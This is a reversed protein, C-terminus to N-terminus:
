SSSPTYTPWPTPTAGQNLAPPVVPTGTEGPILVAPLTPSPMQGATPLLVPPSPLPPQTLSPTVTPSPELRNLLWLAGGGLLGGLLAVILLGICGWLWWRRRAAPKPQALSGPPVEMLIMTINDHGGRQNALDILSEAAQRAPQSEVAALIEEDGVLDTLGDSCLLLRDGERLRLGQNDRAQDDSEGGNLRLRFDVQPPTPSGLFRRIVHSNPHHLAQEPSILGRELAEQIWTHDTTLQHISGRRLLYIRSDGVSATYLRDGVIYVCACTAGMGNKEHNSRSQEYITASATTIAQELLTTPPLKDGNELVYGAILNVTMEAAVEGARHGGIGDALVALLAPASEPETPQLAVIGFRDENNKGRMGPDTLAIVPLHAQQSRIM